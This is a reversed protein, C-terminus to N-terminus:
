KRKEDLHKLSIDTEVFQNAKNGYKGLLRLMIWVNLPKDRGRQWHHRRRAEIERLRVPDEVKLNDLVAKRASIM